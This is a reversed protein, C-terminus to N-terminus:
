AALLRLDLGIPLEPGVAFVSGGGLYVGPGIYWGLQIDPSRALVSPHFLYDGRVFVGSDYPGRYRNGFRGDRYWFSVTGQLSTTPGLFYQASLGVDPYGLALGLGFPHQGGIEARARSPLAASVVLLFTLSITLCITQPKLM